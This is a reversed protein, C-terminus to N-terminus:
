YIVCVCVCVWERHCKWFAIWSCSVYPIFIACMSHSHTHKNNFNPVTEISSVSSKMYLYIQLVRYRFNTAKCFAYKLHNQYQRMCSHIALFLIFITIITDLCVCVSIRYFALIFSFVITHLFLIVFLIPKTAHLWLAHTHSLSLLLSINM